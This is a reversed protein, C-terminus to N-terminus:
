PSVAYYAVALLTTKAGKTSFLKASCTAAVNLDFPGAYGDGTGAGAAYRVPKTVIDNICQNTVTVVETPSPAYNVIFGVQGGVVLNSSPDITLSASKALAPSAFAFIALVGILIARKM